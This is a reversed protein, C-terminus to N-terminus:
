ATHTSQFTFVAFLIGITGVPQEFFIPCNKHESLETEGLKRLRGGFERVLVEAGRGDFILAQPVLQRKLYYRHVVTQSAQSSM